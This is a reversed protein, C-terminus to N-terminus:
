VLNFSDWCAQNNSLVYYIDGATAHVVYQFTNIKEIMGELQAMQIFLFFSELSMCM